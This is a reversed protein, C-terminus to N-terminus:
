CEQQPAWITKLHQANFNYFYPYLGKMLEHPRANEGPKWMGANPMGNNVAGEQGQKGVASSSVATRTVKEGTSLPERLKLHALTQWEGIFVNSQSYRM